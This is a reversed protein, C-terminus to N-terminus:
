SFMEHPAFQHTPPPSCLGVLYALEPHRAATEVVRPSVALKARQPGDRSPKALGRAARPPYPPLHTGLAM